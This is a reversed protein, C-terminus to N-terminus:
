EPRILLRYNTKDRRGGVFLELRRFRRREKLTKEIKDVFKKTKKEDDKTWYYKEMAENDYGLMKNRLIVHLKNLVEMLQLKTLNLKTQYSEVGIQVDEVRKKIVIMDEIDNQDLNPFDAECFKYENENTKTVM